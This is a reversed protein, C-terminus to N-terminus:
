VIEMGNALNSLSRNEGVRNSKRGEDEMRRWCEQDRRRIGWITVFSVCFSLERRDLLRRDAVWFLLRRNGGENWSWCDEMAPGSEAEMM